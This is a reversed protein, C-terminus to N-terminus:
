FLVIMALIQEIMPQSKCFVGGKTNRKQHTSFMRLKLSDCRYLTAVRAATENELEKAAADKFHGGPLEDSM